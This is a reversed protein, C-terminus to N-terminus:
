NGTLLAPQRVNRQRRRNQLLEAGILDFEGGQLPGSTEIRLGLSRDLFGDPLCEYESESDSHQNTRPQRERTRCHRPKHNLLFTAGRYDLCVPGVIQRLGEM